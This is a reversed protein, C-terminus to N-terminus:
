CILKYNEVANGPMTRIYILMLFSQFSSFLRESQSWFSSLLFNFNKAGDSKVVVMQAHMFFSKSSLHLCQQYRFFKRANLKLFKLSQDVIAHSYMQSIQTPVVFCQDCLHLGDSYGLFHFIEVKFKSEKIIDCQIHPLQITM